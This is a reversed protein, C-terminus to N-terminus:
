KLVKGDRKKNENNYLSNWIFVLQLWKEFNSYWRQMKISENNHLSNLILLGYAPM